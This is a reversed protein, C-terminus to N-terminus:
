PTPYAPYVSIPGSWQQNRVHEDYADIRRELMAEWLQIRQDDKLYPASEVLSAYLYIDPHEDLLWNSQLSDSLHPITEWYGFLLNYTDSPPPAFRLKDNRVIAYHTPVGAAGGQDHNIRTLEDLSATELGGFHTGGDHALVEVARFNDPLGVEEASVSFSSNFRFNRIRKDRQLRSEANHIFDPIVDTLDTRILWDAISSKLESYSEIAM